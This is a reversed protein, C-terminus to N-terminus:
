RHKRKAEVTELSIQAVRAYLQTIITTNFLLTEEINVFEMENQFYQFQDMKLIVLTEIENLM